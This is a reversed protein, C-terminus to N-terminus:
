RINHPILTVRNSLILCGSKSDFTKEELDLLALSNIAYVFTQVSILTLVPSVLFGRSNRAVRFSPFVSSRAIDILEDWRGSFCVDGCLGQGM